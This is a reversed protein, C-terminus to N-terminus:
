LLATADTGRVTKILTEPGKLESNSGMERPDSASPCFILRFGCRFNGDLTVFIANLTVVIQLPLDLLRRITISWCWCSQCFIPFNLKLAPPSAAVCTRLGGARNQIKALPGFDQEVAM